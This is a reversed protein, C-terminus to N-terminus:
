AFTNGLSTYGDCFIWIGSSKNLHNLTSVIVKNLTHKKMKM